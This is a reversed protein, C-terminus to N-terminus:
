FCCPVCGILFRVKDEDKSINRTYLCHKVLYLLLIAFDQKMELLLFYKLLSVLVFFSLFSKLFDLSRLKIPGTYLPSSKSAPVTKDGFTVV